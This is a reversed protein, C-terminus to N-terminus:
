KCLVHGLVHAPTPPPRHAALQHRALCVKCNKCVLGQWGQFTPLCFMLGTSTFIVLRRARASQIWTTSGKPSRPFPTHPNSVRRSLIQLAPRALLRDAPWQEWGSSLSLGSKGWIPRLLVGLISLHRVSRSYGLPCRGRWDKSDSRLPPKFGFCTSIPTPLPTAGQSCNM